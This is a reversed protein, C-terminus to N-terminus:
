RRRVRPVRNLFRQTSRLLGGIWGQRGWGQISSLLIIERVSHRMKAASFREHGKSAARRYLSANKCAANSVASPGATCCCTVGRKHLLVASARAARGAGM